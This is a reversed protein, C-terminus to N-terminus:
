HDQMSCMWIDCFLNHVNNTTSFVRQNIGMMIEAYDEENNKMLKDEMNDNYKEAVEQLSTSFESLESLTSQKVSALEIDNISSVSDLFSKILDDVITEIEHPRFKEGQVLIILGINRYYLKLGSQTVYGLNLENRLRQYVLKKLFHNLILSEVRTQRNLKDVHFYTLYVSNSEVPDINPLRVLMHEGSDINTLFHNSTFDRFTLFDVPDQNAESVIQLASQTRFGLDKVLDENANGVGMFYIKSGSLLQMFAQSLSDANIKEVLERIVSIKEPSSNDIFIKDMILNLYFTSSKLSSIATFQSYVDSIRQKFNNVIDERYIIPNTLSRLSTLAKVVFSDLEQTFGEFELVIRFNSVRCSFDSGRIYESRLEFEVHRMAYLCFVEMLLAREINSETQAEM